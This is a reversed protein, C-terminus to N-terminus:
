QITTILDAYVLFAMPFSPLMARPKPRVQCQLWSILVIFWNKNTEPATVQWLFALKDLLQRNSANSKLMLILRAVMVGLAYSM